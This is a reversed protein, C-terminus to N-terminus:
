KLKALAEKIRRIAEVINEDSNDQCDEAVRQVIGDDNVVTNTLVALEGRRLTRICQRSDDVLAEILCHRTRNQCRQGGEHRQKDDVNNRRNVADARYLAKCQRHHDARNDTAIGRQANRSRQVGHPSHMLALLALLLRVRAAKLCANRNLIFNGSLRTSEPLKQIPRM